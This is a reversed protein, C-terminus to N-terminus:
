LTQFWNLNSCVTWFPRCGFDFCSALVSLLSLYIQLVTLVTKNKPNNNNQTKKGGNPYFSLCFLSSSFSFVLCSVNNAYVHRGSPCLTASTLLREVAFFPRLKGLMRGSCGYKFADFNGRPTHTHGTIFRHGTRVGVM